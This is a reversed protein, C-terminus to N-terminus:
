TVLNAGFFTYYGATSKRDEKDDANAQTLIAFFTFMNMSRTCWVTKLLAKSM